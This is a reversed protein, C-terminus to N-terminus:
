EAELKARLLSEAEHWDQEAQGPMCGRDRWLAWARESIQEHTLMVAQGCPHTKLKSTNQRTKKSSVTRRPAIKMSSSLADNDARQIANEDTTKDTKM